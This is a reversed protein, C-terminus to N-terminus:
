YDTLTSRIVTGTYEIVMDGTQGLDIEQLCFLGLGHIHSGFVGM